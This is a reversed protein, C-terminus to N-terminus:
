RDLRFLNLEERRNGLYLDRLLQGGIISYLIGNSGYNLSFYCNPMLNYEGINPLGDKTIGFIGNFKYEIEIDKINPFCTRLKNELIDYKMQCLPDKKILNSMKSNEKGIKEDEGGIIIRNDGTIRLYTYPNKNDRILCTNHWGTFDKVPKTVITFTRYLDVVKKDFYERADYGTAIIVKKAKIVFNNSTELIVYDNNPYISTIETNEYANLGRYISKSILAHTLRYPDIYGGGSKSFIGGEIPFSFLEKAQKKDLFEVKFGNEKRFKFEKNLYNVDSPNDTYYLCEKLTFDCNDELNNIINQMDDLGKETIKFAKVAESEGIMASLGVLDIDIEYQLIATSARTSSYGIINKEVLTTNIGAETFYYATIAGTIGGGLVLVECNIDEKLYPYMCPVKNINSWLMSGSVLQM